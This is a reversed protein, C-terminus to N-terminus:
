NKIYGIELLKAFREPFKLKFADVSKNNLYYRYSSKFKMTERNNDYYKQKTAKGKDTHYYKAFNAEGQERMKEANSDYYHKQYEKFQTTKSFKKMYNRQREKIKEYADLKAQIDAPLTLESM